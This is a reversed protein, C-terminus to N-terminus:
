GKFGSSVGSSSDSRSSSSSSENDEVPAEGDSNSSSSSSATSSSAHPADVTLNAAAPGDHEHSVHEVVSDSEDDNDEDAGNDEEDQLLHMLEDVDDAVPQVVGDDGASDAGPESADCITNPAMPGKPLRPKRSRNVRQQKQKPEPLALLADVNGESIWLQKRKSQPPVYDPDLITKYKSLPALHPVPQRHSAALM